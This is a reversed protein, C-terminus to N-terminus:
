LNIIKKSIKIQLNYKSILLKNYLFIDYNNNNILKLEIENILLKYTLINNIIYDNNM